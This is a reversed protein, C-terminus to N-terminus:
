RHSCPEDIIRPPGMQMVQEALEQARPTAAAEDEGGYRVAYLLWALEELAPAGRGPARQGVWRAADVPPLSAPVRWGQRELHRRARRHWRAVPGQPRPPAEGALRRALPLAVRRALLGVALCAGLLLIVGKWPLRPAPPLSLLAEVRRGAAILAERQAQGDWGLLDQRWWARFRESLSPQPPTLLSAPGPTPDVLVWGDPGLVEVWAHAHYRRVVLEGSGPARDGGAFGTVLRTPVGRARLLVALASAFHECHGSRRDFLFTALPEQVGDDGPSRTYAHEERVYRAVSEALRLPDAEGPAIQEALEQVRLDLAPLRTFASPDATADSPRAGPGLPPLAVLTYRADGDPARRWADQEDRLLGEGEVHLIQGATFVVDGADPRLAIQLRLADEPLDPPPPVMAPDSATTSQWRRGDFADLALGRFYVPEEPLPHAVVRFVETPDDRLLDLAGLEVEPAFGTRAVADPLRAPAGPRPLMPFLVAAGLMGVVPLAHLSRPLPVSRSTEPLLALPLCGIWPVWALLYLPSETRSAAVFMLGSLLASVRDDAPDGRTLRRHVQLYALAWGLGQEPSGGRGVYSLVGLLVVGTLIPWPFGAVRARLLPAVLTLTAAGVVVGVLGEALLAVLGALVVGLVGVARAARM